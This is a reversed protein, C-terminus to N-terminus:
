ARRQRRRKQIVQFKRAVHDLVGFLINFVLGGVPMAAATACRRPSAAKSRVSGRSARPRVRVREDDHAVALDGTVYRIMPCALNHLDTIAVEGTEGPLAARRHRRARARRGRRDHDGDVHAHRRAGRVRLGDADGRPLRLDRVRSRVGARDAARDHPWLREAGVLVPIDDWTRLKNDIVFRALAAAGAAYAVM